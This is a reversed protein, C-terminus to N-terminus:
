LFLETSRRENEEKWDGLLKRLYTSEPGSAGRAKELIYGCPIADVVPQSKVQDMFYKAITRLDDPYIHVLGGYYFSLGEIDILKM